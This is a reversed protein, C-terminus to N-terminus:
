ILNVFFTKRHDEDGYSICYYVGNTALLRYVEKIMKDVLPISNEGCLISDLTGKDIIFNFQENQFQHMDTVDGEVYHIDLGM